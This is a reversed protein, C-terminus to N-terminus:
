EVPLQYTALTMSIHLCRSMSIPRDHSAGLRVQQQQQRQQQGSNSTHLSVVRPSGHSPCAALLQPSRLGQWTMIETHTISLLSPLPSRLLAATTKLCPPTPCRGPTPPPRRRTLRACGFSWHDALHYCQFFCSGSRRPPGGSASCSGRLDGRQLPLPATPPSPSQLAPMGVWGELSPGCDYPLLLRVLKNHHKSLLM